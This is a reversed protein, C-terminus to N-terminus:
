CDDSRGFSLPYWIMLLYDLLEGVPGVEVLLKDFADNLIKWTDFDVSAMRVKARALIELAKYRNM